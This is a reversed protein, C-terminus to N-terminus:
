REGEIWRTLEQHKRACEFFWTADIVHNASLISIAERVPLDPFNEPLESLATECSVMAETPEPTPIPEPCADVVQTTGCASLTLLSLIVWLWAFMKM